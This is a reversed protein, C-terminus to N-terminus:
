QLLESKVPLYKKLKTGLPFMIEDNGITLNIFMM